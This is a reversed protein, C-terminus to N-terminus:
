VNSSSFCHLIQYCHISAKSFINCINKHWEFNSSIIVGLDSVASLTSIMNNGIHYQNNDNNPYCFIPLPQCKAPVISLQYSDMWSDINTISQQLDIHDASFLKADDNWKFSTLIVPYQNKIFIIFLHLDLYVAKHFLM